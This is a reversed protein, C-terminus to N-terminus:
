LLVIALLVAIVLILGVAGISAWFTAPLVNRSQTVEGPRGSGVHQAIAPTHHTVKPPLAEVVPVLEGLTGAAFVRDLHGRYADDDLRGSTYEEGLREALDSREEDSVPAGAQQHYKSSPPM